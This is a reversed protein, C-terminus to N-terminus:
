FGFKAVEGVRWPFIQTIEQQEEPLNKSYQPSLTADVSVTYFYIPVRKALNQIERFTYINNLCSFIEAEIARAKESNDSTESLDKLKDTKTLVLAYSKEPGLQNMLRLYHGFLGTLEKRGEGHYDMLHDGDVLFIIKGATQMKKYICAPILNYFQDGLEKSYNNKLLELFSLTGIQRHLREVNFGSLKESLSRLTGSYKKQNLDETYEGSYDVFTFEVPLLGNKKGSLEYMALDTCSTSKPTIGVELEALMSEIRLKEESAKSLQWAREQIDYSLVIERHTGEYFDVFHSYLALLLLTKGSRSPGYVFVESAQIGQIFTTSMLLFFVVLFVIGLNKLEESGMEFAQYIGETSFPYLLELLRILLYFTLFFLFFRSGSRAYRALSNFRSRSLVKLDLLSGAFLGMVLGSTSLFGQQSILYLVPLFGAFLFISGRRSQEHLALGFANAILFAPIFSLWFVGIDPIRPVEIRGGFTILLFSLLLIFGAAPLESLLRWNGRIRM